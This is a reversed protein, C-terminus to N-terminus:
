HRMLAKIEKARRIARRFIRQLDKSVMQVFQKAIQAKVEIATDEPFSAFFSEWAPSEILDLDSQTLLPQPLPSTIPTPDM